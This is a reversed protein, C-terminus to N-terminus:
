AFKKYNELIQTICDQSWSPDWSLGLDENVIVVNLSTFFPKGEITTFINCARDTAKCDSCDGTEVCPTRFKKGRLEVSRIRVHKLAIINRVPYFPEDLDRVIKNKWSFYYFHATGL